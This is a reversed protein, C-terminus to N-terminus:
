LTLKNMYQLPRHIKPYSLRLADQTTPLTPSTTCAASGDHSVRGHRLKTMKELGETKNNPQKKFFLSIHYHHKTCLKSTLSLSHKPQFSPLQQKTTVGQHQRSRLQYMEHTKRINYSFVSAKM